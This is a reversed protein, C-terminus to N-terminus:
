TRKRARMLDEWAGREADDCGEGSEERIAARERLWDALEAAPMRGPAGPTPRAGNARVIGTVGSTLALALADLERGCVHIAGGDGAAVEFVAGARSGATRAPARGGFWPVRDGAESM